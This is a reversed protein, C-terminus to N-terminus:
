RVPNQPVDVARLPADHKILGKEDMVKIVKEAFAEGDKKNQSHFLAIGGYLSGAEESKDRLIYAGVHVNVCADDRLWNTAIPKSVGWAKVLVPLIKSNILLPGLEHSGDKVEIDEGIHGGQVHMIGILVPAPVHYTNAAMLVCAALRQATIHGEEKDGDVEEATNSTDVSIHPLLSLITQTIYDFFDSKKEETQHAIVEQKQSIELVDPKPPPSPPATIAVDSSIRSHLDKILNNANVKKQALLLDYLQMTSDKIQKDQVYSDLASQAQTRCQDLQEAQRRFRNEWADSHISNIYSFIVACAAAGVAILLSAPVPFVFLLKKAKYFNKKISGEFFSELIAYSFEM